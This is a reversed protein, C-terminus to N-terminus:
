VTQFYFNYFEKNRELENIAGKLDHYSGADCRYYLAYLRTLEDKDVGIKKAEAMIDNHMDGNYAYKRNLKKGVFDERIIAEVIAIDKQKYWLEKLIEGTMKASISNEYNRNGAGRTKGIDHLCIMVRFLNKDILPINKNAFNNDFEALAGKIHQELNSFINIVWTRALYEKHKENYKKFYDILKDASYDEFIKNLVKRQSNTKENEKKLMRIDYDCDGPHNGDDFIGYIEKQHITVDTKEQQWVSLKEKQNIDNM